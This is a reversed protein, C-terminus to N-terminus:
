RSLHLVEYVNVEYSVGNLPRTDAAEWEEPLTEYFAFRSFGWKDPNYVLVEGAADGADPLQAALIEGFGALSEARPIRGALEVAWRVRPFDEGIRVSLPVGINVQQWGFSALINDYPGGLLFQNMGGHDNWLYFPAYRNADNGFRGKESILYAKFALDSFGDTKHGNQQAREKIIQMNYDAPLPIVYQMAIM